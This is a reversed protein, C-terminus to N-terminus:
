SHLLKCPSFSRGSQNPAGKLLSGRSYRFEEGEGKVCRGGTGVELEMTEKKAGALDVDISLGMEDENHKVHMMPIVVRKEEQAMAKVSCHEGYDV